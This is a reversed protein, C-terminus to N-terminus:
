VSSSFAAFRFTRMERLQELAIETLTKCEGLGPLDAVYGEPDLEPETLLRDRNSPCLLYGEQILIRLRELFAHLQGQTLAPDHDTVDLLRLFFHCMELFDGSIGARFVNPGRMDLLSQEANKRVDAKQRPDAVKHVLVLAIAHLLCIYRLSRLLLSPHPLERLMAGSLDVVVQRRAILFIRRLEM